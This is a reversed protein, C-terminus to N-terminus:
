APPGPRVFPHRVLELFLQNAGDPAETDLLASVVRFGPPVELRAGELLTSFGRGGVLRTALTLFLADLRAAITHLVRPGAASFVVRHGREELAVLLPDDGVEGGPGGTVVVGVGAASLDGAVSPALPQGTVVFVDDGLGAAARADLRGSATLIAVAPRPPLGREARWALLDDFPGGPRPLLDQASGEVIDRVYRGSSLVVDAQVLLENFLRWDRDNAIAPPPGSHGDLGIRGDLSVLFSAYVYRGGAPARRRLDLELHAGELPRHEGGDVHLRRM